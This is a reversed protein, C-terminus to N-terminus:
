AVAVTAYWKETIKGEQEGVELRIYGKKTLVAIRDSLTKYSYPSQVYIDKSSVGPNDSIFALLIRDFAEVTEEKIFYRFIWETERQEDVRSILGKDRLNELEAKISEKGAFQDPIVGEKRLLILLDLIGKQILTLDCIKEKLTKRANTDM